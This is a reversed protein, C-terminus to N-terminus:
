KLVSKCFSKTIYHMYGYILLEYTELFTEANERMKALSFTLFFTRMGLKEVPLV